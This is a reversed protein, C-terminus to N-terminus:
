PRPLRLYPAPAAGGGIIDVRSTWAIIMAHVAQAIVLYSEVSPQDAVSPNPFCGEDADGESAVAHNRVTLLLEERGRLYMTFCAFGQLTGFRLMDKSFADMAVFPGLGLGKARYPSLSAVIVKGLAWFNFVEFTM